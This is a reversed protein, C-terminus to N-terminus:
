VYVDRLRERIKEAPINNVKGVMIIRILMLENGKALIYGVIAEIGFPNNKAARAYGLLYNDMAKEFATLNGTQLFGQIGEAAVKRYPTSELTRIINEYPQEVAHSFYSVDLKGYPILMEKLLAFGEGLKKVRLLSRINILDVQQQFYRAAFGCRKRRCVSFIQDYMAKDLIIDIKQPDVGLVSRDKIEQVAGAMFLPLLSMDQGEVGSKLIDIPVIGIQALPLDDFGTDLYKAKLLVKLNHFDHKLFFLDTIDPDPSIERIFNFVRKMENILIIEFDYPSEIEAVLHSYGAESLVKLADQASPADVMRDIRERGLLKTELVRVRAVGYAYSPQPM